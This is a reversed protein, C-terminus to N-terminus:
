AHLIQSLVDLVAVTNTENATQQKLAKFIIKDDEDVQKSKLIENFSKCIKSVVFRLM